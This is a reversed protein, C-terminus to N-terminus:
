EPLHAMPARARIPDRGASTFQKLHFVAFIRDNKRIYAHAVSPYIQFCTTQLIHTIPINHNPHLSYRLEVAQALDARPRERVIHIAPPMANAPLFIRIEFDPLNQPNDPPIPSQCSQQSHRTLLLSNRTFFHEAKANGAV